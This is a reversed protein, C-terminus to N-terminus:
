LYGLAKLADAMGPELNENSVTDAGPAYWVYVALRRPLASPFFGESGAALESPQLETGNLARPMKKPGVFVMDAPAPVGDLAIAIRLPQAPDADIRVDANNQEASDKHFNVIDFPANEGPSTVIRFAVGKETRTVEGNDALYRLSFAGLGEGEVVGDITHKEELSGTVLIHLGDNGSAAIQSALRALGAQGDPADALPHQEGPDANLDYWARTDQAADDIYKFAESRAGHASFKDFFLSSYAYPQARPEGAALGSLTTGQFSAPITLGLTELITPGADIIQCIGDVAKGADQQQPLKLIFPIRIEEDFLTSGHGTGGHEWFEEGHDSVVVILTNDYIGLRKLTDVIRGFQVDTFAIEGDYLAKARAHDDDSASTFKADYPVPPEYPEHPGVVHIYFFWPRGAAEELAALAANVTDEDKGPKITYSDIDIFRNFGRDFGWAPVCNPNSMFGQTEYGADRFVEALTPLDARLVDLRDKAEHVSPYTSTLLSAVAPRTWSSQSIMEAFRLSDGALADINPSTARDYGYCGLHDPRLTDILFVLVNPPAEAQPVLECHALFVDCNSSFVVKCSVDRGSYPGLDIRWDSWHGADEPARQEVLTDGAFVAVSPSEPSIGKPFFALRVAGGEPITGLDTVHEGAPVVRVDRWDRDIEIRKQPLASLDIPTAGNLSIGGSCGGSLVVVVALAIAAGFWWYSRTDIM